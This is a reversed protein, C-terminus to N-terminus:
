TPHTSTGASTPIPAAARTPARRAGLLQRVPPELTYSANLSWNNALRKRLRFEVSDYDRKPKPTKYDPYDPLLVQTVGFGPNAIFYVEIGGPNSPSSPLLM